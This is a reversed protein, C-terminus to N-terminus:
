EEEITEDKNTDQKCFTHFQRPTNSQSDVEEVTEEEKEETEQESDNDSTADIDLGVQGDDYETSEDEIILRDTEVIDAPCEHGFKVRIYDIVGNFM